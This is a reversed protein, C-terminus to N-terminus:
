NGSPNSMSDGSCARFVGCDQIQAKALRNTNGVCVTACEMNRALTTEARIFPIKNLM